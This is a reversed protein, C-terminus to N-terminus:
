LNHLRQKMVIENTQISVEKVAAVNWKKLNLKSNNLNDRLQNVSKIFNITTCLTSVIEAFM